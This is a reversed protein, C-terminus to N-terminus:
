SVHSPACKLKGIVNNPNRVCCIPQPTVLGSRFSTSDKMYPSTNPRLFTRTQGEPYSCPLGPEPMKPSLWNQHQPIVVSLFHGVKELLLSVCQPLSDIVCQGGRCNPLRKCGAPITSIHYVLHSVRLPTCNAETPMYAARTTIM